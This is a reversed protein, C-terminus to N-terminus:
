IINLLFFFLIWFGRKLLYVGESHGRLSSLLSFNVWIKPKFCWLLQDVTGSPADVGCFWLRGKFKSALFLHIFQIWPILFWNCHLEHQANEEVSTRESLNQIFVFVLITIEGCYKIFQVLKPHLGAVNCVGQSKIIFFPTGDSAQIGYTEALLTDSAQELTQELLEGICFYKINFITWGFVIKSIFSSINLIKLIIFRSNIM